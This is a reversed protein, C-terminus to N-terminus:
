SLWDLQIEELGDDDDSSDMLSSMSHRNPLSKKTLVEYPTVSSCRISMPERREVVEYEPLPASYFSAQSLMSTQSTSAHSSLDEESRERPHFSSDMEFIPASQRRESTGNIADKNKAPLPTKMSAQIKTIMLRQRRHQQPTLHISQESMEKHKLVEQMDLKKNRELESRIARRIEEQHEERRKEGAQQEYVCCVGSLLISSVLNIACTPDGVFM